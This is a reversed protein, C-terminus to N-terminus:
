ADEDGEDSEEPEDEDHGIVIGSIKEVPPDPPEEDGVPSAAIAPIIRLPPELEPIRSQIEVDELKQWICLMAEHICHHRGENTEPRHEDSTKFYLRAYRDLLKWKAYGIKGPVPDQKLRDLLNDGWEIFPRAVPCWDPNNPDEEKFLRFDANQVWFDVGSM